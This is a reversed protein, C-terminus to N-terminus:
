SFVSLILKLLRKKIFKISTYLGFYKNIIKLTEMDRKFRNKKSFGCNDYLVYGSLEANYNLNLFIGHKLYFDYDSSVKYNLDYLIKKNSFIMAQHSTPMGCKPDSLKKIWNKKDKELVHCPIISPIKPKKKFVQDIFKDGSNLFILGKGMALRCAKNMADYIGDDKESIWYDIAFNYKKIIGLTQDTSGGDIIIYELNCYNQSLVSLITGEISQEGNYVVTIVTILPNNKFSKKFYGNKRFGGEDIRSKKPPLFLLTDFEDLSTKDSQIFKLLDDSPLKWLNHGTSIKLNLNIPYKM